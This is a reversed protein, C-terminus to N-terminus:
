FIHSSTDVLLCNENRDNLETLPKCFVCSNVSSLCCLIKNQWSNGRKAKKSVNGSFFDTAAAFCILLSNRYDGYYEM